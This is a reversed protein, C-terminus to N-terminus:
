FRIGEMLVLQERAHSRGSNFEFEISDAGVLSLGLALNLNSQNLEPPPWFTARNEYHHSLKSPM